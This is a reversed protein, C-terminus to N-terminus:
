AHNPSHTKQAYSILRVPLRLRAEGPNRYAAVKKALDVRGISRLCEEMLDVRQPSVKDLKELETVVDLFSQWSLFTDKTRSTIGPVRGGVCYLVSRSRPIHRSVKSKGLKERPLTTSLLFKIDELNESSLAQSINAM